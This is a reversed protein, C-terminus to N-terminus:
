ADGDLIDQGDEHFSTDTVFRAQGVIEGYADRLTLLRDGERLKDTAYQLIRAVEFADAGEIDPEFARTDCQIALTFLTPM